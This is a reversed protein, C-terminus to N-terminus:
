KSRKEIQVLVTHQANGKPAATPRQSSLTNVCAGVDLGDADVDRWAGQPVSVVGPMIRETVFAPTAIRGRDNRVIVEDRHAIGREAADKPNIWVSQPHLEKLWTVNGYSSHTRGKFHHGICQLPYKEQLADGPMEWTRVFEPIPTIVDGEPLTWTKTYGHLMQSFIEIKGSPTKLPNKVPDDRFDKLAIVSPLTKKFIGDKRLKEFSPLEPIEKRSEDVLWRVWEEQSRGETFKEEIGLKRAIGSLMEYVTRCEYLPEIVKDALITYGLNGASGQRILDLQEANSVDPLLYDAWKASATMQNDIVVITECKSEDSLITATRNLDAHQNMIVNSGHNWMFKIDAGLKEAGRIGDTTATMEHGRVIADTWLFFPLVAKVGNEGVPVRALPLSASGERSGNGGGPIGIQGIMAALTFIARATNDGSAHRQPGWGQTIACPKTQAIERALRRITAAPVGTIPAAWEPTKATRDRGKGLVYSEYSSGAPVGAPLTDESFGITYKALFAEDHLKETIMVHAMGAVLAADTGPRLPVWEDALNMATESQRPDLVIVKHGSERKATQTVFVEGGGSMRTEHPNNGFMVVLKSNRTDDNSNSTVYEGYQYELSLSINGTSYDAYQDLFGGMLNMLRAILTGSPPWSSGVTAGITGTGYQIFVSENGHKDITTRLREAIETYAQEWSIKEFKGEGRKGIRKMPAKLRDPNYIRQRISRGRVCARVKQTGIRDDGTTEPEIRTIRGDEVRMLLPCRSGCNVNCSSWVVRGPDAQAVPQDKGHHPLLGCSSLGVAGAAGSAIASWTMFTRRSTSLPAASASPASPTPADAAPATEAARAAALPRRNEM